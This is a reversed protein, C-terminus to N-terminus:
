RGGERSSGNVYAELLSVARDVGPLAAIEDRVRVAAARFSADGLVDDLAAAVDDPTARVPHLVRAAGLTECRAANDPQDAGMPLLVSPLGHALAGLVVGSGGQSVVARCQPLVEAQEVFREVRVEPPQPGLEAPDIDHGVTVIARRGRLGALVRAFLDGSEVNFATGLTVYIADGRALPADALRIAHAGGPARLSPPFPSLVLGAAPEAPLGHLARLRALPEALVADDFFTDTAGVLVTASPVGAREAAVAAGFDAEDHVLADPRWAEILEGLRAARERAVSGAFMDRLVRHERARDPEVLPGRGPPGGGPGTAFAEFGRAAVTEVLRERCAFAVDHGAERSAVAIPVLPEFHGVGAVFAFLVRM